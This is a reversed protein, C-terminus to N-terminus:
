MAHNRESNDVRAAFDDRAPIDVASLNRVRPEGVGDGMAGLRTPADFDVIVPPPREEVVGSANPETRSRSLKDVV